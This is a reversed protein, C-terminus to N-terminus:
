PTLNAFLNKLVLKSIRYFDRVPRFHSSYDDPYVTTVSVSGIRFGSKHAKLLIETEMEFGNTKSKVKEIVERSYIRFGSQTDRMQTGVAKSIFLEGIKNALLRLYPMSERNITREGIIIDGKKNEFATILKPIESPLHQGDADITIIADLDNKTIESFGTNLAAGKGMNKNHKIVHAGEAEAKLSTRDNSGDDVVFIDKVFNIAGRIVESINKEENYAPILIAYRM